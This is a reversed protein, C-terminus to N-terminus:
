WLEEWTREHVQAQRGPPFQKPPLAPLRLWVHHGQYRGEIGFHPGLEDGGGLGQAQWYASDIEDFLDFLSKVDLHFRSPRVRGDQPGGIIETASAFLTVQLKVTDDTLDGHRYIRSMLRYLRELDNTVRVLEGESGDSFVIVHEAEARKWNSKKETTGEVLIEPGSNQDQASAGIVPTQAAAPIAACLCLLLACCRRISM